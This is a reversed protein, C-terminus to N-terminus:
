NKQPTRISRWIIKIESLAANIHADDYVGIHVKYFTDKGSAGKPAAYIQVGNFGAAELTKKVAIATERENYAGIQIYWGFDSAGENLPSTNSTKIRWPLDTDKEADKVKRVMLTFAPPWASDRPPVPPNRILTQPAEIQPAKVPTSRATNQIAGSEGSITRAFLQEITKTVSNRVIGTNKEGLSKSNDVVFYVLASKRELSFNFPSFNVFAEGSIRSTDADLSILNPISRGSNKTYYDGNLIFEYGKVGEAEKYMIAAPNQALLEPPNCTVDTLSTIGGSIFVKAKIFANEDIKITIRAGNSLTPLAAFIHTKVNATYLNDLVKVLEQELNSVDGIASNADSSNLISKLRVFEHEPLENPQEASTIGFIWTTLPVGNIEKPVNFSAPMNLDPTYSNNDYGDTIIVINISQIDNPLTGKENMNATINEVARYLAYYISTGYSESLRYAAEFQNMLMDKAHYTDLPLLTGQETGHINKKTINIANNSFAMLGVYIGSSAAPPPAPPERPLVPVPVPPPPLPNVAVLFPKVSKPQIYKPLKDANLIEMNEPTANTEGAFSAPTYFIQYYYRSGPEVTADTVTTYVSGSQPLQLFTVFRYMEPVVSTKGASEQAMPYSSRYLAYRREFPNAVGAWNISIRVEDKSNSDRGALAAVVAKPLSIGSTIEPAKKGMACLPAMVMFFCVATWLLKKM